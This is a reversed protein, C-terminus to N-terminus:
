WYVYIIEHHARDYKNLGLNGSNFLDKTSGLKDHSIFLPSVVHAIDRTMTPMM